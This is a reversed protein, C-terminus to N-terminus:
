EPRSEEPVTFRSFLLFLLSPGKQGGHFSPFLTSFSCFLLLYKRYTYLIFFAHLFCEINSWSVADKRCSTEANMRLDMYTCTWFHTCRLALSGLPVNIYRGGKPLLM